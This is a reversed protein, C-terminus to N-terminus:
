STHETICVKFWSGSVCLWIYADRKTYSLTLLLPDFPDDLLPFLFVALVHITPM